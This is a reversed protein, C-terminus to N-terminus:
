KTEARGDPFLLLGHDGRTREETIWLVLGEDPERLAPRVLYINEGRHLKQGAEYAAKAQAYTIDWGSSGMM